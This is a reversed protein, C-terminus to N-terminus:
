TFFVLSSYGTRYFLFAHVINTDNMKSFFFYCALANVQTSDSHEGNQIHGGIGPPM